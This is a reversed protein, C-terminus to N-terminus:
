PRPDAPLSPRPDQGARRVFTELVTALAEPQDAHLWHGAGKLTVLRLAPFLAALGPRASDPVYASLGGRVVLTPGSWSVGAALPPFDGLVPLAAALAPLNLRWRFGGQEARVLNQLLFARLRTEPLAEALLAEADERRAVEALPLAMLAGIVRDLGEMGPSPGPAIDLVGLHSIWRPTQLALMMAAKGGMSHGIVPVPGLGVREIYRAVDAALHPYDMVPSWPSEGHNRLDLVHWEAEGALRTVIAQWNRASGFLGHLLVVPRGRGVRRAALDVSEVPGSVVAGSLLPGSVLPRRVVRASM